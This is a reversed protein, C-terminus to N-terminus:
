SFLRDPNNKTQVGNAIVDFSLSKGQGANSATEPYHFKVTLEVRENVELIDRTFVANEKSLESPKGQYLIQDDQMVTMELIDALEGEVNELYLKCYVDITSENQIFFEKQVTIGPEFLGAQIIPAGDNLNLQVTGMQFQNGDVSVMPYVLAFTTVCLGIVMAAVAAVAGVLKRRIKKDEEM